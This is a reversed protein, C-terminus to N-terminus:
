HRTFEGIVLLGSSSLAFQEPHLYQEVLGRRILEAATERAVPITKWELVAGTLRDCQEIRITPMGFGNCILLRDECDCNRGDVQLLLMAVECDSVPELERKHARIEADAIMAITPEM